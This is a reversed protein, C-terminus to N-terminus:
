LTRGKGTDGTRAKEAEIEALAKSSMAEYTRRFVDRVLRTILDLIDGVVAELFSVPWCIVWYTVTDLHKRLELNDQARRETIRGDKFDQVIRNCRRKWRWMSWALGIPVWGLVLYTVQALTLSFFGYLGIFCLLVLFTTWGHRENHECFLAVVFLSLLVYWSAFFGLIGLFFAEM